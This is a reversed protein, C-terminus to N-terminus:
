LHIGACVSISANNKSTLQWSRSKNDILLFSTSCFKKPFCNDVHLYIQPDNYSFTSIQLSNM